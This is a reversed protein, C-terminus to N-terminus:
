DASGRGTLGSDAAKLADVLLMRIADARSPRPEPQAAIWRDLADLDIQSLDISLRRERPGSAKGSGAPADESDAAVIM